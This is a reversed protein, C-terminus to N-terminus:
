ETNSDRQTHRCHAYCTLKCVIANSQGAHATCIPQWRRCWLSQLQRYGAAAVRALGVAAATALHAPVPAARAGEGSGTAATTPLATLLEAMRWTSSLARLPLRASAQQVQAHQVAPGLLRPHRPAAPHRGALQRHAEM